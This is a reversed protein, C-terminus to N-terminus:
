PRNRSRVKLSRPAAVSPATVKARLQPDIGAWALLLQTALWESQPENLIRDALGGDELRTDELRTDELIRNARVSNATRGWARWAIPLGMVGNYAGGLAGALAGTLTPHDSARVARDVVTGVDQPTSLFCYLVQLVQQADKPMQSRTQLWQQVFELSRQQTLWDELTSIHSLNFGSEGQPHDAQAQDRKEMVPFAMLWPRLFQALATKPSESNQLALSLGGGVLGFLSCHSPRLTPLIRELIHNLARPSEHGYLLYPLLGIAGELPPTTETLWPLLGAIAADTPLPFTSLVTRDNSPDSRAAVLSHTSQVLRQSLQGCASSLIAPSEDQLASGTWGGQSGRWAGLVAGLLCGQFRLLLPYSTRTMTAQETFYEM